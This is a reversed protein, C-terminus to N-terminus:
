SGAVASRPGLLEDAVGNREMGLKQPQQDKKRREIVTM